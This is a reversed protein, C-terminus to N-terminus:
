SQLQTCNRLRNQRVRFLMFLGICACLCSFVVGTLACYFLANGEFAFSMLAFQTLVVAILATALNTSRIAEIVPENEKRTSIIGQLTVGIETFTITAIAIAIYMDFAAIEGGNLLLSLYYVLCASSSALIIVAVKRFCDFSRSKSADLDLSGSKCGCKHSRVALIKASFIGINFFGNLCLFLSLTSLGFIIKALATVVHIGMSLKAFLVVRANRKDRDDFYVRISQMGKALRGTASM